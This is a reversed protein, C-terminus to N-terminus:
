SMSFYKLVALQQVITVLPDRHVIVTVLSPVFRRLWKIERWLKMRGIHEDDVRRKMCKCM